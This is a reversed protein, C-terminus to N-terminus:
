IIEKLYLILKQKIGNKKMLIKLKEGANYEKRLKELNYNLKKDSNM